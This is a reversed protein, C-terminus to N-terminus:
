ELMKNEQFIFALEEISKIFLLAQPDNTSQALVKAAGIAISLKKCVNNLEIQEAEANLKRAEALEKARNALVSDIEALLKHNEISPKELKANAFELVNTTLKQLEEGVNAGTNSNIKLDLLNLVMSSLKSKLQEWLDSNQGEVDVQIFTKKENCSEEEFM